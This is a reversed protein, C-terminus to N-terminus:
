STYEKHPLPFIGKPRLCLFCFLLGYIITEGWQIPIVWIALARLLSLFLCALVAGDLRGVGGVVIATAAIIFPAMAGTPEVGLDTASLGGSVGALIGVVSYTIRRLTNWDHGCAVLLNNSDLAANLLRGLPTVRLLITILCLLGIGYSFLALRVISLQVGFIVTTTELGPRVVLTASGFYSGLVNIIIIYGGLSSLLLVARSATVRYLPALVVIDALLSAVLGIVASAILAIGLPLGIYYSCLYVAYGGLTAFSPLFFDLHRSVKYYMAIAIAFLGISVGSILGYIVSEIM